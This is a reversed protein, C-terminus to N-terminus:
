GIGQIGKGKRLVTETHSSLENHTTCNTNTGQIEKSKHLVGSLYPALQITFNKLDTGQANYVTLIKLCRKFGYDPQRSIPLFTLLM